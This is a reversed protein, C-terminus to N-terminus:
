WMVSVSPACGSRELAANLATTALQAPPVDKLAGGFSGIATRAASVIYVEPSSMSLEAPTAISRGLLV